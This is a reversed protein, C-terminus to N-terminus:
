QAKEAVYVRNRRTVRFPYPEEPAELPGLLEVFADLYAQLDERTQWLTFAETHRDEVRAFHRALLDAYDDGEAGEPRVRSWLEEMHRDRNYVGVLRGGPRLVRALERVGADVDPLHYLVWNCVAVDFEGDAFPLEEILAEHADVGRSRARAVMAAAADIGIVTPAAIQRAFLGDGCGADLVRHPRAEAVAALAESWAEEGRLWGTVNQRRREFRESTAYERELMTPDSASM